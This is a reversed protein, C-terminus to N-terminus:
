EEWDPGEFVDDERFDLEIDERDALELDRKGYLRRLDWENIWRRIYLRTPQHRRFEVELEPAEWGYARAHATRLIDHAKRLEAETMPNLHLADDIASIAAEAFPAGVVDAPRRGERLLGPMHWRDGKNGLVEYAFDDIVTAVVATGAVRHGPRLGLWRGLQEYARARSIPGYKSILETEDLFIAWGRYGNVQCFRSLFRITQWPRDAAVVVETPVDLEYENIHRRISTIPITEGSFYRVVLDVVELDEIGVDRLELLSRFMISVGSSKTGCWKKFDQAVQRDSRYGLVMDLLLGEPKDKAQMAGVVAHVVKAPLHLPTEKSISVKSSVFNAALARQHLEEVLHSKGSGFTGSIVFGTATTAEAQGANALADDFRKVIATQGSGLARVADGNPVGARLAEIARRESITESIM